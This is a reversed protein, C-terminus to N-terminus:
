KWYGSHQDLEAYSEYFSGSLEEGQESRRITDALMRTFIEGGKTNLHSDDYYCSKDPLKKLKKKALNFNFYPIGNDEAFQRFWSQYYDLNEYMCNYYKSQPTSIMYIAAGKERCLAILKELWAVNEPNVAEPLRKTHYLEAYNRPLPWDDKTNLYFGLTMIQNRTEYQGTVLRIASEIGKSVMDYYLEPWEDATFAARFYDWRESADTLRGLMPLDGKPGEEARDRLLTDPSVELIVTRVPNRALEKELLTCRARLTMMTGALDYCSVGLEENLVDPRVGFLTYSAGCAIFDVKGSIEDRELGDQYHFNEGKLYCAIFFASLLGVMLLFIGVTKAIRKFNQM